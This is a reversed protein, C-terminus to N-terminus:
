FVVVRKLGVGAWTCCREGMELGHSFIIMWNLGDGVM